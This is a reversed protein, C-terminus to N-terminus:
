SVARAPEGAAIDRFRQGVMNVLSQWGDGDIRGAALMQDIHEDLRELTVRSRAAAIRSAIEAHTM